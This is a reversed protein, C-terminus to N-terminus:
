GKPADLTKDGQDLEKPADLGKAYHIFKQRLKILSKMPGRVYKTQDEISDKLQVIELKLLPKKWGGDLENYAEQMKIMEKKREQLKFLKVTGKAENLKDEFKKALKELWFRYYRNGM